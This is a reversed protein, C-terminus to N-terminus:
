ATWERGEFDVTAARAVGINREINKIATDAMGVQVGSSTLLVTGGIGADGPMFDDPADSRDAVFYASKFNALQNADAAHDVATLMALGAGVPKLLIAFIAKSACVVARFM